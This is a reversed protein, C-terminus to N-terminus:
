VICKKAEIKRKLRNRKREEKNGFRHRIRLRDRNYEVSNDVTYIVGKGSEILDGYKKRQYKCIKIFVERLYIFSGHEKEFMKRFESYSQTPYEKYEEFYYNIKFDLV